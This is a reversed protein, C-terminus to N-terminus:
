WVAEVGRRESGVNVKTPSHLFGAVLKIRVPTLLAVPPWICASMMWRGLAADVAVTIIFAGAWTFAPGLHWEAVDRTESTM